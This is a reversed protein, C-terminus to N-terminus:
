ARFHLVSLRGEDRQVGVRPPGESKRPEKSEKSRGSDKHRPPEKAKVADSAAYAVLNLFLKTEPLQDLKLNLDHLLKDLERGDVEVTGVKVRAMKHNGPTINTNNAETIDHGKPSTASSALTVKVGVAVNYEEPNLFAAEALVVLVDGKQLPTIEQSYVVVREAEGAAEAIPFTACKESSSGTNRHDILTLGPRPTAPQAHAPLGSWFRGALFAANLLLGVALVKKM